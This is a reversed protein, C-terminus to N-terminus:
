DNKIATGILARYTVPVGQPTTYKKEYLECFEKVEKPTLRKGSVANGGISSMAKLLKRSTAFHQTFRVEESELVTFQANKLINRFQDSHLFLAPINMGKSRRIEYLERFSGEVFLSFIFAGGSKLSKNIEQVTNRPNSLWQLVSSACIGQFSKEKVPLYDIDAQIPYVKCKRFHRSKCLKLAEWAIDICVINARVHIKEELVGTGSGIDLWLDNPQILNRIRPAILDLLQIQVEANAEYTSAKLGFAKAIQIKSPIEIDM